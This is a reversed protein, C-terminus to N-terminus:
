TIDLQAGIYKLKEPTLVYIKRPKMKEIDSETEYFKTWTTYAASRSLTQM